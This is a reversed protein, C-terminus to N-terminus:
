ALNNVFWDLCVTYAEGAEHERGLFLIGDLKIPQQGVTDLKALSSDVLLSVLPGARFVQCLPTIPDSM